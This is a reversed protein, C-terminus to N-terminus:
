LLRGAGSPKYKTGYKNDIMGLYEEISENVREGFQAIAEAAEELTLDDLEYTIDTIYDDDSCEINIAPLGVITLREDIKGDIYGWFADHNPSESLFLSKKGSHMDHRIKCIWSLVDHQEPTLTNIAANEVIKNDAYRAKGEFMEKRADQM